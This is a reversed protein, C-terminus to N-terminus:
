IRRECPKAAPSWLCKAMTLGFGCLRSSTRRAHPAKPAELVYSRLHTYGGGQLPGLALGRHAHQLAEDLYRRNEGVARSLWQDLDARSSFQRRSQMAADSVDSISMSNEGQTQMQGFRRLCVDAMRIHARSDSPTWRLVQQLHEVIAEPVAEDTKSEPSLSYSLYQDWHPSALAACGRDYLM